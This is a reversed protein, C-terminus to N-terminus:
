AHRAAIAPAGISSAPARSAEAAAGALADVAAAVLDQRFHHLMHGIGPVWDFRARPILAAAPLGQLANNVVPDATGGIITVPAACTAYSLSARTLAQWVSMADEAEAIMREPGSALAFPFSKAFEDPMAQPLFITRWLLPLLLPDAGKALWSSLVEGLGPAFRPGFLMQELRIEPFCLPALALIGATAEPFAMGHCLAVTGGFSHGLVLPRTVGIAEMAERIIEAQRWPSADVLRTRRSLGHGPRDVAIVRYHRSLVPMLPLWMDELTMLTGHILVLDPGEGAEAYALSRGDGLDVFRRPVAGPMEGPVTAIPSTPSPRAPHEM